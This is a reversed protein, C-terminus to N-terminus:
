TPRAPRRVPQERVIVPFYHDQSGWLSFFLAAVVFPALVPIRWRDLFFALAGFLWVALMLLLLIFALASAFGGIVPTANDRYVSGSYAVSIGGIAYLALHGLLLLLALNHGPLLGGHRPDLYGPGLWPALRHGARGSVAHFIRAPRQARYVKEARPVWRLPLIVEPPAAVDEYPTTFLLALWVLLVTLVFIVALAALALLAYVGLSRDLPDFQPASWALFGITVSSPLLAALIVWDSSLVPRAQAGARAGDSPEIRQRGYLLVLNSTAALAVAACWLAAAAFFFQVPGLDAFSGSLPTKPWMLYILGPGYILWFLIPVRLLSLWTLLNM